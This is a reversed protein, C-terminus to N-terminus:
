VVTLKPEEKPEKVLDVIGWDYALIDHMPPQYMIVTFKVGDFYRMALYADYPVLSGFITKAVDSQPQYENEDVYYVLRGDVWDSRRVAQGHMMAEVAAGFSLSEIELYASEFVEKPSWSTYGDEYIVRYGLAGVAYKGRKDDEKAEDPYADVIKIGIYTKLKERDLPIGVKNKM